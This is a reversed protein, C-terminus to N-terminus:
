YHNAHGNPIPDKEYTTTQTKDTQKAQSKTSQEQPRQRDM